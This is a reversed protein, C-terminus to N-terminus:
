APLSFFGWGALLAVANWSTHVSMVDTVSNRKERVIGLCLGFIMAFFMSEIPHSAAFALSTVIITARGGLRPRLAAWVQGRFYWEELIGPGFSNIVVDLIRTRLPVMAVVDPSGIQEAPGGTLVYVTGIACMAVISTRVYRGTGETRSPTAGDTRRRREGDLYNLAVFGPVWSAVVDLPFLVHQASVAAEANSVGHSRVLWARVDDYPIDALRAGCMAPALVCLFWVAAQGTRRAATQQRVDEGLVDSGPPGLV